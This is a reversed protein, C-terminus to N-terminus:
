GAGYPTNVDDAVPTTDLRALYGRRLFLGDIAVRQDRLQSSNAASENGSWADVRVLEVSGTASNCARDGCPRQMTRWSACVHAYGGRKFVRSTPAKASAANSAGAVTM